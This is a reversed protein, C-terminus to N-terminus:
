MRLPGRVIAGIGYEELYPLLETEPERNSISYDLQVVVLGGDRNFHKVYDLCNTSVGALKFKGDRNLTEFASM